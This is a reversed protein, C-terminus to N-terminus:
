SSDTLAYKNLRLLMDDSRSVYLALEPPLHLLSLPKSGSLPLPETDTESKAADVTDMHMTSPMSIRPPPSGDVAEAM